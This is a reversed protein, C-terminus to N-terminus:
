GQNTSFVLTRLCCEHPQETAGAAWVHGDALSTADLPTTTESGNPNPAVRWASGNWQMTLSRQVGSDFNRTEGVAWVDTASVATVGFLERNGHPSAAISWRSGDWHEILTRQENLGHIESEYGVAWADTASIATVNELQNDPPSGDRRNPTPAISWRSGNWHAALTTRPSRTDDYGVAWVDNTAVASIATAFQFTGVPSPSPALTWHRGNWHEFLLVISDSSEDIAWGAAWIDDPAIATIADLTNASGTDTALNPSPVVQWRHGNWHEILTLSQTGDPVRSDGVAWADTAGAVAVDHLDAVRGAITPTSVVNWAGGTWHEALSGAATASDSGVVWADGTARAAVGELLANFVHHGPSPTADISWISPGPAGFAPATAGAVLFIAVLAATAHRALRMITRGTAESQIRLM